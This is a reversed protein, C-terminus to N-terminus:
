CLLPGHEEVESAAQWQQQRGPTGQAATNSTRGRCGVVTWTNMILTPRSHSTLPFVTGTCKHTEEAM